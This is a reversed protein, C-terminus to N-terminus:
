EGDARGTLLESSVKVGSLFAELAEQKNVLAGVQLLLLLRLPPLFVFFVGRRAAGCWVV